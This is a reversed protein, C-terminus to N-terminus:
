TSTFVQFLLWAGNPDSPLFGIENIALPRARGILAAEVEARTGARRSMDDMDAYKVM